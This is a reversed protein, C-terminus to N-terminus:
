LQLQFAVDCRALAIRRFVDDCHGFETAKAKEPIKAAGARELVPRHSRRRHGGNLAAPAPVTEGAAIRWAHAESQARSTLTIRAVSTISALAEGRFGM